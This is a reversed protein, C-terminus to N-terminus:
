RDKMRRFAKVWEEVEDPQLREPGFELIQQPLQHALVSLYAESLRLVDAMQRIVYPPPPNRRGHEIDNLYQVSIRTGDDKLIKSALDKQSLGLQKRADAIYTGFDSM